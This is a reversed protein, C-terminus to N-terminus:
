GTDDLAAVGDDCQGRQAMFAMVSWPTALMPIRVVRAVLANPGQVPLLAPDRHGQYLLMQLVQLSKQVSQAHM